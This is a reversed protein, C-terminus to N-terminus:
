LGLIQAKKANFEEETLLGKDKLTALKQIEDATSFSNNEIITPANNDNSCAWVLAIVWGILTWGLLINLVLIAGTQNHSKNTAVIFPLFYLFGIIFIVLFVIIGDSM